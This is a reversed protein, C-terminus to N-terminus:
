RGNNFRMRKEVPRRLAAGRTRAAPGADRDREGADDEIKIRVSSVGSGEEALPRKRPNTTQSSPPQRANKAAPALRNRPAPARTIPNAPIQRTAQPPARRAVRVPARPPARVPAQQTATVPARGTTRQTPSHRAPENESEPESSLDSGDESGDESSGSVSGSESGSGSDGSEDSGSDNNSGSDSDSSGDSEDSNSGSEDDHSSSVDHSNALGPIVRHPQSQPNVVNPQLTLKRKRQVQPQVPHALPHKRQYNSGPGDSDYLSEEGAWDEKQIERTYIGGHIGSFRNSNDNNPVSPCENSSQGEAVQFHVYVVVRDDEIEFANASDPRFLDYASRGGGQSPLALFGEQESWMKGLEFSCGAAIQAEFNPAVYKAIWQRESIGESEHVEIWPMPELDISKLVMASSPFFFGGLRRGISGVAVLRVLFGEPHRYLGPNDPSILDGNTASGCTWNFIKSAQRARSSTSDPTGVGCMIHLSM